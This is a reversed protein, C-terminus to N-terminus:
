PINTPLAEFQAKAVRIATLDQAQPAGSRSKVAVRMVLLRANTGDIVRDTRRRLLADLMAVM